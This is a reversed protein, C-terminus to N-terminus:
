LQRNHWYSGCRWSNQVPQKYLYAQAKKQEVCDWAAKSLPLRYFNLDQLDVFLREFLNVNTCEIKDLTVLCEDSVEYIEGYIIDKSEVQNQEALKTNLLGPYGGLNFMSYEPTTKATGLYIQNQLASNRSFGRKLTGYVFLITSM